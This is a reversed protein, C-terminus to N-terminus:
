ELKVQDITKHHLHPHYWCTSARNKIEFTPSWTSENVIPTHPGGDNEPAVHLGHWHLTTTEGILNNVNIKVDDGKKLILTPGLINGNAGLTATQYNNFFTHHGKQLHLNIVSGSLTDPIFLKNQGHVFHYITLFILITYLKVKNM